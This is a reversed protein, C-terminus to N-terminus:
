NPPGLFLQCIRERYKEYTHEHAIRTVSGSLGQLLLRNGNAAKLCAALNEASLKQPDLTWANEGNVLYQAIASISSAIPVCGFAAAEALVKPFGEAKTPLLFIHSQAYHRNLEDRGLFGPFEIKACIKAALQEYETRSPGDGALVLCDLWELDPMSALAALVLDVGKAQELRGAFLLRLKGDFKKVRATSLAEALEGQSFCPNEFGLIHKPQNAWRGNVTVWSHRALRLTGRQLRYGLPPNSQVWNGAYKHWFVRKRRLLFSLCVAVWAALAPGRTHIMRAARMPKWLQIVLGPIALLNKMKNLFGPGGRRPLPSFVLNSRGSIRANGPIEPGFDSGIWHVSRFQTALHEIERLTPEFVAVGIGAPYMATDSVILLHHEADM